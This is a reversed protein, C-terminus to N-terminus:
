NLIIKKFIWSLFHDVYNQKGSIKKTFKHQELRREWFINTKFNSFSNDLNNLYENKYTLIQDLYKFKKKYFFYIVLQIDIALYKWKYPNTNTFFKKLLFSNIILSSTNVRDPWNNFLFRYIILNKYKKRKKIKFIKGIRQKHNNLYLKNKDLKIRNLSYIKQNNFEDDGDLLLVWENNVNKIASQIKYIQDQTPYKKKKIVKLFKINKQNKYKKKLINENSLKSYVIVISLKACLIQSICSNITSVIYNEKNEATIIVTYKNHM